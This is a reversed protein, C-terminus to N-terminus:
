HHSDQEEASEEKIDSFNVRPTDRPLQRSSSLSGSLGTTKGGGAYEQRLAREYPTSLIASPTTTPRYGQSSRAAAGGAGATRVPTSRFAPDDAEFSSFSQGDDLDGEPIFDASTEAENFRSMPERYQPLDHLVEADTSGQLFSAISTTNLPAPLHQGESAAGWGDTTRVLPRGPRHPLSSFLQAGGRPSGAPQERDQERMLGFLRGYLKDNTQPEDAVPAAHSIPRFLLQPQQVSLPTEAQNGVRSAAQRLSRRSAASSRLDQQYPSDPLTRASWQALVQRCLRKENKEQVTVVTHQRGKHQLVGFEWARVSRLLLQEEHYEVADQESDQLSGVATTWKGWWVELEAGAAIDRVVQMRKSSGDWHRMVEALERRQQSARVMDASGAAASAVKTATTWQSMCKSALSVKYKRRFTHYAKTLRDRRTTEAIDAWQSLTSSATCYYSAKRAASDKRVTRALINATRATWVRLCSSAMQHFSFVAAQQETAFTAQVQDRWGSIVSMKINHTAFDLAVQIGDKSAATSDASASQLRGLVKNKVKDHSVRMFRLVKLELSWQDVVESKQQQYLRAQYQVLKSENKWYSTLDGLFIKDAQAARDKVEAYISSWAKLVGVKVQRDRTDTFSTLRRSLAAQTQWDQLLGRADQRQIQQISAEAAAYGDEHEARWTSITDELLLRQDYTACAASLAVAEENKLQWITMCHEKLRCERLDDAVRLLHEQRWTDVVTKTSNQHFTQVAVQMLAENHVSARSWHRLIGQLRFTRLKAEEAAHHARWAEFIRKRLIHRRAVATREIEEQSCTHWHTFAKFVLVLDYARGIRKEMKAQHAADYQPGHSIHQQRSVLTNERWIDVAESLIERQDIRTAALEFHRTRKATNATIHYWDYLASASWLKDYKSQFAQVRREMEVQEEVDLM